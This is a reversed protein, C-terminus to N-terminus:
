ELTQCIGARWVMTTTDTTPQMKQPRMTVGILHAFDAIRLSRPLEALMAHHEGIHWDCHYQRVVTALDIHCLILVMRKLQQLIFAYTEKSEKNAIAFALEHYTSRFAPINAKEGPAYHKTIVGITILVWGKKLLRYTGDGCLKVYIQNTLLKFTQKQQAPNAFVAVGCDVRDFNSGAVVLKNPCANGATAEDFSPLTRLLQQWDAKTWKLSGPRKSVGARKRMNHALNTLASGRAPTSQADRTAM